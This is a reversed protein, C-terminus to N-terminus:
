HAASSRRVLTLRNYSSDMVVLTESDLARIRSQPACADAPPGDGTPNGDADRPLTVPASSILHQSSGDRSMIELGQDSDFMVLNDGLALQRLQPHVKVIQAGADQWGPDADLGTGNASTVLFQGSTNVLVDVRQGDRWGNGAAVANVQPLAHGPQNSPCVWPDVPFAGEPAADQFFLVQLMGPRLIPYFGMAKDSTYFFRDLQQVFKGQPQVYTYSHGVPGPKKGPGDEGMTDTLSLAHGDPWALLPTDRYGSPFDLQPGAALGEGALKFFHITTAPGTYDDGAGMPKTRLAWYGPAGCDIPGALIGEGAGFNVKAPKLVVLRFGDVDLTPGTQWGDALTAAQHDPVATPAGQPTPTGTVPATAPHRTVLWGVIAILLLGGGAAWALGYNPRPPPPTKSTTRSKKM